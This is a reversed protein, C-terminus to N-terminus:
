NSDMKKKCWKFYQPDGGIQLPIINLNNFQGLDPLVGLFDPRFHQNIYNGLDKELNGLLMKNRPGEPLEHNAIEGNVRIFEDTLDFKEIFNSADFLTWEQFDKSNLIHNLFDRILHRNIKLSGQYVERITLGQYKGFDLDTDINYKM